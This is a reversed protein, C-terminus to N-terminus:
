NRWTAFELNEEHTKNERKLMVNYITTIVQIVLESALSAFICRDLIELWHLSTTNNPLQKIKEAISHDLHQAPATKLMEILDQTEQLVETDTM